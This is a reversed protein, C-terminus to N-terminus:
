HNDLRQMPGYACGHFANSAFKSKKLVNPVRLDKWYKCGEPWEITAVGDIDMVAKAAIPSNDWQLRFDAWHQEIKELGVGRHIYLTQWPNGGACPTASRLLTRGKPCKGIIRLANALGQPAFIM